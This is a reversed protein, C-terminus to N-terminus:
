PPTGIYGYAIVPPDQALKTRDPFLCFSLEYVDDNKNDRPLKFANMPCAKLMILDQNVTAAPLDSPHLTLVDAYTYLDVHLAGPVVPVSGSSWWPAAKQFASLTTERTQIKITGELGVFRYGLILKGTTGTTIPDLKMDLAPEVKDVFGFDFPTTGWKVNWGARRLKTADGM